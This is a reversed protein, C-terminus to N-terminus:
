KKYEKPHQNEFHENVHGKNTATVKIRHSHNLSCIYILEDYQDVETILHIWSTIKKKIKLPEEKRITSIENISVSKIENINIEEEKEEEIEEDANLKKKKARPLLGYEKEEKSFFKDNM